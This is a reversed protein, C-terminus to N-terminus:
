KESRSGPVMALRMVAVEFAMKWVSFENDHFTMGGQRATSTAMTSIAVTLGTMDAESAPTLKAMAPSIKQSARAPVGIWRRKAVWAAPTSPSSTSTM